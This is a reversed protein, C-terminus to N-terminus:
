EDENKLYISLFAISLVLYSILIILQLFLGIGVLLTFIFYNQLEHGGLFTLFGNGILYSVALFLISSAIYIAAELKKNM